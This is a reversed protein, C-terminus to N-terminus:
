RVLGDARRQEDIESQAVLGSSHLLELRALRDSSKQQTSPESVATECPMACSSLLTIAAFSLATSTTM